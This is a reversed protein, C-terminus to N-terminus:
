RVKGRWALYAKHRSLLLPCHSLLVCLYYGTSGGRHDVFTLKRQGNIGFDTGPGGGSSLINKMKGAEGLGSIM